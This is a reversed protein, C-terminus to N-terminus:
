YCGHADANAVAAGYQKWASVTGAANAGYLSEYMTAVDYNHSVVDINHPCQGGGKPLAAATPAALVGVGSAIAGAALVGGVVRRIVMM